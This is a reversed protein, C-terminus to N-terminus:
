YWKREVTAEIQRKGNRIEKSLVRIKGCSEIGASAGWIGCNMYLAETSESEIEQEKKSVKQRLGRAGKHKSVYM